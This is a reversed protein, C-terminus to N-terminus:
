ASLIGGDGDFMTARRGYVRLVGLCGASVGYLLAMSEVMRRDPCSEDREYRGLLSVSLGLARAAQRQTLGTSRRAKAYVNM